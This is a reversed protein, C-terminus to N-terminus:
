LGAVYHGAFSVQGIEAFFLSEVGEILLAFGHSFFHHHLATAEVKNGLVM